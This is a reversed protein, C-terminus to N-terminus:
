FREPTREIAVELILFMAACLKFYTHWKLKLLKQISALQPSTVQRALLHLSPTEAFFTNVVQFPQRGQIFWFVKHFTQAMYAKKNESAESRTTSFLGQRMDQWFLCCALVAPSSNCTPWLESWILSTTLKVTMRHSCIITNRNNSKPYVKWIM